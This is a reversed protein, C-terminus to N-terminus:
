SGLVSVLDDVLRELWQGARPPNQGVLQSGPEQVSERRVFAVREYGAHLREETGELLM